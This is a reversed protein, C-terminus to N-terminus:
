PWKYFSDYLVCLYVKCAFYNLKLAPPLVQIGGRTLAILNVSETLVM